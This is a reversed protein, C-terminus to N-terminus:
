YKSDNLVVKFSENNIVCWSNIAKVAFNLDQQNRFCLPDNSRLTGNLFINTLKGYDNYIVEPCSVSDVIGVPIGKICNQELISISLGSIKVRM